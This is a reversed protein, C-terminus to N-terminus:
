FEFYLFSFEGKKRKGSSSVRTGDVSQALVLLAALIGFVLPRNGSMTDFFRM